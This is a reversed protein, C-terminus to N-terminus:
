QANAQRHPVDSDARTLWRTLAKGKIVETNLPIGLFLIQYAIKRAHRVITDDACSFLCFLRLSLAM